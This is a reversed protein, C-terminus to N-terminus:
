DPWVEGIRTGDGVRQMHYTWALEQKGEVHVPVLSRQYLSHRGANFGEVQDLTTLVAADTWLSMHMDGGMVSVVEDQDIKDM